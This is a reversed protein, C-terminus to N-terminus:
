LAYRARVRTKRRMAAGAMGFGLMLLAWTSPEPVSAIWQAHIFTPVFGNFEGWSAQLCRPAGGPQLPPDCKFDGFAAGFTIGYSNVSSIQNKIFGPGGSDGGAISVELPGLGTDCRGFALCGTDNAALGNDFDSLYSFQFAATGGISSYFEGLRLDYTNDGQRLRGTFAGAGAGTTGDVGGTISRTGYGAVNFTQGNIDGAYFSYRQASSPAATALTLMAIDNQDIVEGTYGARVNYGSVQIATVGAQPAGGIQMLADPGQSVGDYFYATTSVLNAARGNVDNAVGDSVCHAATLIRGNTLLSGSCVFASTTGNSNAYVMRLQVVGSYGAQNPALYIPNGPPVAAATGTGTQGVITSAAQWDVGNWTGSATAQGAMAVAPLLAAAAVAAYFSKIM